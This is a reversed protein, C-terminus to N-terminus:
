DAFDSDAIRTAHLDTPAEEIEEPSAFIEYLEDQNLEM